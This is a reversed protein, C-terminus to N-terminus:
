KRSVQYQRLWRVIDSHGKLTLRWKYSLQKAEAHRTFSSTTALMGCTARTDDIVHLLERVAAVGVKRHKAFRKAQVLMMQSEDMSHRIAIIDIGNDAGVPTLTVEWGKEKLLEALLEEFFRDSVSYLEASHVALHTIVEVNIPEIRVLEVGRAGRRAPNLFLINLFVDALQDLSFPKNIFVPDTRLQIRRLRLQHYFSDPTIGGSSVVVPIVSGIQQLHSLVAFGDPDPMQVNFVFIIDKGQVDTSRFERNTVLRVAIGFPDATLSELWEKVVDGILDEEGVEIIFLANKKFIM